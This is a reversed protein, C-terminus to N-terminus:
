QAMTEGELTAKKNHIHEKITDSDPSMRLLFGSCTPSYRQQSVRMYRERIQLARVLLKSARQLDEM